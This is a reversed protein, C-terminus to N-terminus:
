GTAQHSPLWHPVHHSPIDEPQQKKVKAALEHKGKRVAYIRSVRVKDDIFEDTIFLKHFDYPTICNAPVPKLPQKQFDPVRQGFIRPQANVWLRDKNKV